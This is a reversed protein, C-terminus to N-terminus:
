DGLMIGTLSTMIETFITESVTLKTPTKGSSIDGSKCVGSSIDGCRGSSIDGTRGSSIDGAMAGVSLMMCIVLSAFVKTFINKM